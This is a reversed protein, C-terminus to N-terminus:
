TYVEGYHNTVIILDVMTVRGDENIDARPDWNTDQPKSSYAVAMISLDQTNIRRDQNLDWPVINYFSFFDGYISLRKGEDMTSMLGFNIQSVNGLRATDVNGILLVRLRNIYAESVGLTSHKKWHLGLTYWCKMEVPMSLYAPAAWELGDRSRLVWMDSGEHREIGVSAVYDQGSMLRIFYARDGDSVLPLGWSIYFEGYVWVEEVDVTKYCYAYESRSRGNTAFRVCYGNQAAFTDVVQAVEGSSIRIGSWESFDASDFNDEFIYASSPPPTTGFVFTFSETESSYLEFTYPSNGSEEGSNVCKVTYFGIPAQSYEYPTMGSTITGNPFTITLIAGIMWNEGNWATFKVTGYQTQPPPPQPAPTTSFVIDSVDFPNNRSKAYEYLFVGDYDEAMTLEVSKRM